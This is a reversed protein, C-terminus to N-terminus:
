DTKQDVVQTVDVLWKVAEASDIGLIRSTVSATVVERQGRVVCGFLEMCDPVRDNVFEM